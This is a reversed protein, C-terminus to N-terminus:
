SIYIIYIILTIISFLIYLIANENNHIESLPIICEFSFVCVFVKCVATKPSMATMMCAVTRIGTVSGHSLYVAALRIVSSTAKDAYPRRVIQRSMQTTVVTTTTIVNGCMPSVGNITVNSSTLPM